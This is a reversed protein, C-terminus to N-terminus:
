DRAQFRTDCVDIRARIPPFAVAEALADDKQSRIDDLRQAIFRLFEDGCVRNGAATPEIHQSETQVPEIGHLAFQQVRTIFFVPRSFAHGIEGLLPIALHLSEVLSEVFGAALTKLRHQAPRM